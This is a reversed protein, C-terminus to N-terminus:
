RLAPEAAGAAAVAARRPPKCNQTSSRPCTKSRLGPQRPNYRVPRRSGPRTSKQRRCGPQRLLLLRRCRKRKRLSSNKGGKSTGPAINQQGRLSAKLLQRSQSHLSFSHFLRSKAKLKMRPKCPMGPPWHKGGATGAMGAAAMPPRCRSARKLSLVQPQPLHLLGPRHDISVIAARHALRSRIEERRRARQPGPKRPRPARLRHQLNFSKVRRRALHAQLLNMARVGPRTKLPKRPLKRAIDGEMARCAFARRLDSCRLFRGNRRYPPPYSRRPKRKKGAKQQRNRRMM